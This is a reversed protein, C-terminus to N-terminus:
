INHEKKIERFHDFEGDLEAQCKDCIIENDKLPEFCEVCTGPIKGCIMTTDRSKGSEM